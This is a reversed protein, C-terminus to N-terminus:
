VEKTADVESAIPVENDNVPVQEKQSLPDETTNNDNNNTTKEKDNSSVEKVKKQSPTTPSVTRLATMVLDYDAENVWHYYIISREKLSEEWLISTPLSSPEVTYRFLDWISFSEIQFPLQTMLENMSFNRETRSFITPCFVKYLFMCNLLAFFCTDQQSTSENSSDYSAVIGCIFTVMTLLVGSIGIIRYHKKDRIKMWQISFRMDNTGNFMKLTYYRYIILLSFWVPWLVLNAIIENRIGDCVAFTNGYKGCFNIFNAAPNGLDKSYICVINNADVAHSNFATNIRFM